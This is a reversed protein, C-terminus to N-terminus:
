FGLIEILSNSRLKSYGIRPIDEMNSLYEDLESKFRTIDGSVINRIFVPLVNWIKPGIMQFTQDMLHGAATDKILLVKNRKGM